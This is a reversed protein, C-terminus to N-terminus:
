QPRVMRYYLCLLPKMFILQMVRFHDEKAASGSLGLRKEQHRTKM